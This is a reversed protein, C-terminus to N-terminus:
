KCTNTTIETKKQNNPEDRTMAQRIEKNNKENLRQHQTIKLCYYM